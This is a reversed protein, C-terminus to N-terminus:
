VNAIHGALVSCHTYVSIYKKVCEHMTKALLAHPHRQPCGFGLFAGRLVGGLFQSSNRFLMYNNKKMEMYNWHCQMPIDDRVKIFRCM